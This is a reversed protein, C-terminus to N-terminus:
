DINFWHCIHHTFKKLTYHSHTRCSYSYSGSVVWLSPPPPHLGSSGWCWGRNSQLAAPWCSAQSASSCGSESGGQQYAHGWVCMTRQCIFWCFRGMICCTNMVEGPTWGSALYRAERSVLNLMRNMSVQQLSSNPRWSGGGRPVKMDGSPHLLRPPLSTVPIRTVGSM